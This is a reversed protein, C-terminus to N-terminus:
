PASGSERSRRKEHDNEPRSRSQRAEALLRQRRRVISAGTVKRV